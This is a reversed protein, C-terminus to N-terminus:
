TKKKGKRAKRPAQFEFRGSEDEGVQEGGEGEEREWDGEREGVPDREGDHDELLVDGNKL